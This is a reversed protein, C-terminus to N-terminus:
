AGSAQGAPAALRHVLDVMADVSRFHDLRLEDNPIRTDFTKEVFMVLEMAFLSNVFGLAFIDQDDTLEFTPYKATIFRRLEARAADSM